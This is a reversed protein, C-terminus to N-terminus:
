NNINKIEDLFSIRSNAPPPFSYDTRPYSLTGGRMRRTRRKKRYKRRRTM